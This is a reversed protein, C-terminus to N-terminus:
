AAERLMQRCYVVTRRHDAMAEEYTSLYAVQGIPPLGRVLTKFFLPPEGDIAANYGLFETVISRLGVQTEGMVMDEDSLGEAEEETAPVPRRREDLVYFESDAVLFYDDAPEPPTLILIESM